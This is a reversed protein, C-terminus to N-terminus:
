YLLSDLAKKNFTIIPLHGNKIKVTKLKRFEPNYDVYANPIFYDKLESGDIEIINGYSKLTVSKILLDKPKKHGLIVSIRSPFENSDLSYKAELISSIDTKKLPKYIKKSQKPFKNNTFQFQFVDDETSTLEFSVSLEKTSSVSKVTTTDINSISQVTKKNSETKCAVFLVLMLITLLINKIHKM